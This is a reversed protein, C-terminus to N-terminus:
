PCRGKKVFEDFSMDALYCEQHLYNLVPLFRKAPVFGPILTIPEGDSNLFALTPYGKVGFYRTFEVNTLSKGRYELREKPNEANLRVAVFNDALAKTVEQNKLTERHFKKCYGCWDTYFEVLILKKEKKAKALADNFRFWEVKASAKSQTAALAGVAQQQDQEGGGCTSTTLVISLLLALIFFRRLMIM